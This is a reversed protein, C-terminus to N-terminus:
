SDLTFNAALTPNLDLESGGWKYRTGFHSRYGSSFGDLRAQTNARLIKLASEDDVKLDSRQGAATLM